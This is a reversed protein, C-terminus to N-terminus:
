DSRIGIKETAVELVHNAIKLEDKWGHKDEATRRNMMYHISVHCNKCLTLLDKWVDENYIRRYTIHHCQLPNSMTGSCGCM